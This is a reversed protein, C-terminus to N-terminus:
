ASASRQSRPRYQARGRQSARSAIWGGIAGAVIKGLNSIVFLWRFPEGMAVLIAVDVAALALGILLGQYAPRSSGMGAWAGLGLITAGGVLPGIWTGVRRAYEEAEAPEAPGAIMVVIVLALIPVLEGILVSALFRTWHIAPPTELLTV